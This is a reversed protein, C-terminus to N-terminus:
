TSIKGVDPNFSILKTRLLKKCTRRGIKANLVVILQSFDLHTHTIDRSVNESAFQFKAKKTLQLLLIVAATVYKGRLLRWNTFNM